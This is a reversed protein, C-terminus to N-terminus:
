RQLLRKSTGLNKLILSLWRGASEVCLHPLQYFAESVRMLDDAIVWLNGVTFNKV